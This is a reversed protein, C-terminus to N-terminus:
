LGLAQDNVSENTPLDGDKATKESENVIEQSAKDIDDASVKNTTEQKATQEQQKVQTQDSKSSKQMKMYAFASVAVLSLAILIAVIIAAKPAGSKKPPQPPIALPNHEAAVNPLPEEPSSTSSEVSHDDTAVHDAAESDKSSTQEDSASTEQASVEPQSEPNGEETQSEESSQAETPKNVNETAETPANEAKTVESSADAENDTVEAPEQVISGDESNIVIKTPASEDTTDSPKIDTSSDM